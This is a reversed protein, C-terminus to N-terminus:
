HPSYLQNKYQKKFAQMELIFVVQTHHIKKKSMAPNARSINQKLNNYMHEQILNVQLKGKKNQGCWTKPILTVSGEYSSNLFIGEKVRSWFLKQLISIIQEKFTQNSEM